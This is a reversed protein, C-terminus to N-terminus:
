PTPSAGTVPRTTHKRPNIEARAASAEKAESPATIVAPLNELKARDVKRIGTPVALTCGWGASGFLMM